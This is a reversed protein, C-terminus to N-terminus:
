SSGGKEHAALFAIINGVTLLKEAVDDPVEVEFAAEIQMITETIELSDDSLDSLLTADSIQDIDIALAEVLVATLRDRIKDSNM